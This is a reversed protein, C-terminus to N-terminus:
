SKRPGENWYDKTVENIRSVVAVINVGLPGLAPCPPGANAQGGNVILEVVKKDAM